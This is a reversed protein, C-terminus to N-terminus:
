VGRIAPRKDKQKIGGYKKHQDNVKNFCEIHYWDGQYKKKKREGFKKMCVTCRIGTVRVRHVAGRDIQKRVKKEEAL